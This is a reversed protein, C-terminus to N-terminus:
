VPDIQQRNQPSRRGRNRAFEELTVFVVVLLRGAVTIPFVELDEVVGKQEIHRLVRHFSGIQLLAMAVHVLPKDRFPVLPVCRHQREIRLAERATEGARLQRIVENDSLRLSPFAFVETRKPFAARGVRSATKAESQPAASLIHLFGM